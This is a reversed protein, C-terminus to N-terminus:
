RMKVVNSSVAGVGRCGGLMDARHRRNIPDNPGVASCRAKEAPETPLLPLAPHAPEFEGERGGEGQAGHRGAGGRQRRHEAGNEALFPELWSKQEM